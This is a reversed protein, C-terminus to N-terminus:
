KGSTANPKVIAEDIEMEDCDDMDGSGNNSLEREGSDKVQSVEHSDKVM